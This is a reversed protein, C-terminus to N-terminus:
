NLIQAALGDRELALRFAEVDDRDPPTLDDGAFTIGLARYKPLGLRHLLLLGVREPRAQV